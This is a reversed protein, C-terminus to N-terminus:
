SDQVDINNSSPLRFPYFVDEDVEPLVSPPIIRRQSFDADDMRVFSVMFSFAVRTTATSSTPSYSETVNRFKWVGLIPRVSAGVIVDQPNYVPGQRTVLITWRLGVVLGSCQRGVADYGNTAPHENLVATAGDVTVWESAAEPLSDAFASLRSPLTFSVGPIKLATSLLDKSTFACVSRLQVETLAIMCSAAQVDHLFRVGKFGAGCSGFPLVLGVGLVNIASSKGDASTAIDGALLRASRIYGPRGVRPLGSPLRVGLGSADKRYFTVRSTYVYKRNASEAVDAITLRMTANSIQARGEVPDWVYEILLHQGVVASRCVNAGSAQQSFSTARPLNPALSGSADGNNSFLRNILDMPRVNAGNIVTQETNADVISIAVVAREAEVADLGARGPPLIVTYKHRDINFWSRSTATCLSRLTGEVSCTAFENKMFRTTHTMQCSGDVPHAVPSRWQGETRRLAYSSGTAVAALFPVSDRPKFFVTGGANGATMATPWSAPPEKTALVSLQKAVATPNPPVHYMTMSSPTNANIVCIAGELPVSRTAYEQTTRVLQTAPNPEYCRLLQAQAAAEKICRSFMKVEGACDPDCCCNLDCSETLDCMCQGFAESQANRATSTTGPAPVDSWSTFTFQTVNASALGSFPGHMVMFTTLLMVYCVIAVRRLSTVPSTMGRRGTTKKKKTGPFLNVPFFECRSAHILSRDRKGKPPPLFSHAGNFNGVASRFPHSTHSINISSIDLFSSDSPPPSHNPTRERM